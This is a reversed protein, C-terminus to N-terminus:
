SEAVRWESVGNTLHGALFERAEEILALPSEAHGGDFWRLTKPEAFAAQLKQGPELGVLVDKTGNVVFKPVHGTMPAFTIPDTLAHIMREADGLDAFETGATVFRSYPGSGGVFLSVARIRHDLAIFPVGLRCGMSVGHYGISGGRVDHRTLLYDVTRMLDQVAQIRADRTRFMLDPRTPTLRGRNDAGERSGFGYADVSVVMLGTKAWRVAQPEPIAPTPTTMTHRGLPTSGHQLIVVRFPGGTAPKTITALVTEDHTSGFTVRERELGPVPLATRPDMLVEPESTPRLPLTRDYAYLHRLLAEDVIPM